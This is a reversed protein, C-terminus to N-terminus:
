LLFFDLSLFLLFSSSILLSYLLFNSFDGDDLTNLCTYFSNITNTINQKDKAVTTGSPDNSSNSCSSYIAIMFSACLVTIVIKKLNTRKM